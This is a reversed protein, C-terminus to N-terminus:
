IKVVDTKIHLEKLQKDSVASPSGDMPCEANKNKPFAIVERIDNLGSLLAVIRDFGLGVGGHIPGGFKYADLLFGFKVKAEEDSLGIRKFIRSQVEPNSIRISGSCLETGNLVLDYTQAIVRGPDSEIYQLDEERPMCFPHHEADWSQTEDNWSYMPFDTIWSFKWDTKNIWSADNEDTKNNTKTNNNDTTNNDSKNNNLKNNNILFLKEAVALRVQGLSTCAIKWSDAVFLLLDGDKASSSKVLKQQVDSNLYKSISSELVSGVVKAWALGKAHHKKSIDVLSEMDGRSFSGGFPVLLCKVVGGKAVVSQFVSFEVNKVISTVDFLELAFRLDPKDSGFRNMSDKYALREFPLKIKFGAEKWLEFMLGEVVKFIDEQSCFSMELDIQTFEPQRDARLDEDRLCRAIQFYRDFGAVMLIQKYLQPSQPLAYFLGPNVRSPVVYDRAGEPTSKVLMPTEIELFNQSSLYNRASIALKHRLLLRQQMVPRRLDLYRYKLRLDEGAVISDDIDILPLESKSIITLSNVVVEVAGTKMKSNKMGTKREVVVGEVRLVWERGLHEALKHAVVSSQSDFVIQTLGYRDRLDVFIKGGHDRRTHVWGCLSVKKKIDKESLEGCTHSRMM